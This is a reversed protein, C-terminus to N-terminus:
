RTVWHLIKKQSIALLNVVSLVRMFVSLFSLDNKRCSQSPIRLWVYIHGTAQRVFVCGGLSTIFSISTKIPMQVENNSGDMDM